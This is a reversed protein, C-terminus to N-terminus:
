RSRPVYFFLRRGPYGHTKIYNGLDPTLLTAPPPTPTPMGHRPVYIAGNMAPRPAANSQPNVFFFLRTRKVPLANYRPPNTKEAQVYQPFNQVFGPFQTKAKKQQAAAACWGFLAMSGFVLLRM